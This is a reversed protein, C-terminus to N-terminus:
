KVTVVVLTFQTNKVMFKESDRPTHSIASKDSHINRLFCRRCHQINKESVM